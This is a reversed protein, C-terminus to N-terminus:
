INIIKKTTKLHNKCAGTPRTWLNFSIKPHRFAVSKTLYVDSDKPNQKTKYPALYGPVIGSQNPTIKGKKQM